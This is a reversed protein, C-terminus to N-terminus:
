RPMRYDALLLAVMDGRLKLERLAELAQSEPSPGSSGTTPETGGASIRAMARSVEPDDDVTLIATCAEARATLPM